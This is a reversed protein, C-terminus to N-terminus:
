EHSHGYYGVQHKFLSGAMVTIEAERDAGYTARSQVYGSLLHLVESVRAGVLYSIVIYCACYLMNVLDSLTQMCLIRQMGEPTHIRIGALVQLVHRNCNPNARIRKLAETM